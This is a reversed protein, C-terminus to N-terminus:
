LIGIVTCRIVPEKGMFKGTTESKNSFAVACVDEPSLYCYISLKLIEESFSLLVFYGAANKIMISPALHTLPPIDILNNVATITIKMSNRRSKKDMDTIGFSLISCILRYLWVVSLM